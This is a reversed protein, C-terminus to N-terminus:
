GKKNKVPLDDLEGSPKHMSSQSALPLNIVFCSGQSVPKLAIIGGHDAIISAVMSLGLGSGDNKTSIFPEFLRSSVEDPIGTGSDEIEIQLPLHVRKKHTSGSLYHTLNYSTRIKLSDGNQTAESANKFLNIFCQVLLERDADILPLSPDYDRSIALHRGFSAATIRMTHDLIEHINVRDLSLPADVSFTDIRNLLSTIRDAETVIMESLEHSEESLEMQLLQAAGKIGALPNKIEHSLLSTMKSMSLAAGKLQEMDEFRRFETIEYITVMVGKPALGAHVNAESLPIIHIDGRRAGMKPSFLAVSRDSVSSHAYLSRKILTFLPNDEAFLSVLPSGVLMTRSSQLFAEAAHNVWLFQIDESLVLVPFPLIELLKWDATQASNLASQTDPFEPSNATM